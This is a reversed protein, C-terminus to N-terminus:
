TGCIIKLFGRQALKEVIRRYKPLLDANNLVIRHRVFRQVEEGYTSDSRAGELAAHIAKKEEKTSYDTSMLNQAEEAAARHTFNVIYIPARDKRILDLVTEHLPTERYEFDLPVPRERSAVTVAPRGNLKTLAQEFF